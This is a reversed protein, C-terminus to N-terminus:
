RTVRAKEYFEIRKKEYNERAIRVEEQLRKISDSLEPKVEYREEYGFVVNAFNFAEAVSKAFHEASEQAKLANEARKLAYIEDRCYSRLAKKTEAAKKAREKRAKEKRIREDEQKELRRQYDYYNRVWEYLDTDDDFSCCPPEIPQDGYCTFGGACIEAKLLPCDDCCEEQAFDKWLLVEEM